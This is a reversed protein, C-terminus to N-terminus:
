TVGFAAAGFLVFPAANGVTGTFGKSGTFGVAVARTLVGTLAGATFFALLDTLGVFGAPLGFAFALALGFFFPLYPRKAPDFFRRSVTALSSPGAMKKVM